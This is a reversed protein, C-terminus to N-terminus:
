SLNIQSLISKYGLIYQILRNTYRYKIALGITNMIHWHYLLSVFGRLNIYESFITKVYM